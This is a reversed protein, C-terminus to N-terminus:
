RDPQEMVLSVIDCDNNADRGLELEITRCKNQRREGGNGKGDAIEAESFEHM